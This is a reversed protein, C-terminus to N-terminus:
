SRCTAGPRSRAWVRNCLFGEAYNPIFSTPMCSGIVDVGNLRLWTWLTRNSGSTLEANLSYNVYYVGAAKFVLKTPDGSEQTSMADALVDKDFAVAQGVSVDAISQTISSESDGCPQNPNHSM